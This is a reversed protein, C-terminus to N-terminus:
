KIKLWTSKQNNKFKLGAAFGRWARALAARDADSMEPASKSEAVVKSFEPTVLRNFLRVRGADWVKSVTQLAEAVPRGADLAKAGENWAEAYAQGLEPVYRKGLPIFRADAPPPALPDIPGRNGPLRGRAGAGVVGSVVVLLLTRWFHSLCPFRQNLHVYM